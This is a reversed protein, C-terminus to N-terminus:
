HLYNLRGADILWKIAADELDPVTAFERDDCHMYTKDDDAL